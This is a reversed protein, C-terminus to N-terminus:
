IYVAYMCTKKEKWNGNGRCPWLDDNHSVIYWLAPKKM